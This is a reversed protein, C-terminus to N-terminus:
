LYPIGDPGLASSPSSKSLAQSIEETALPTSNPHCSLRGRPPLAKKPPFFHNLLATNIGVPTSASPLSPFRPTKRPAVLKEATWINQATTSSLFNAWYSAKAQKIAKFYGRKSERALFHLESSREKKAM